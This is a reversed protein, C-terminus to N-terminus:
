CLYKGSNIKQSTHIKQWLSKLGQIFFICVQVALFYVTAREKAEAKENM